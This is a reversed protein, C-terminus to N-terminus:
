SSETFKTYWVRVSFINKAWLHWYKKLGATFEATNFARTKLVWIPYVSHYGRQLVKFTQVKKKKKEKSYGESFEEGPMPEGGPLYM